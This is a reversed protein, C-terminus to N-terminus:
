NRLAQMATIQDSGFVMKVESSEVALQLVLGLAHETEVILDKIASVNFFPFIFSTDLGLLFKNLFLIKVSELSLTDQACIYKVDTM